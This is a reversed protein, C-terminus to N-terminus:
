LDLWVATRFPFMDFVLASVKIVPFCRNLAQYVSLLM